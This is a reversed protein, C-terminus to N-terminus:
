LEQDVVCVSITYENIDEYSQIGAIIDTRFNKNMEMKSLKRQDITSRAGLNRLQHALVDSKIANNLMLYWKIVSFLIAIIVIVEETFVFSFAIWYAIQDNKWDLPFIINFFLTRENGIFPTVLATIMAVTSASVWFVFSLTMIKNIKKNIKVFEERDEVFYVCMQHLLELIESKEM